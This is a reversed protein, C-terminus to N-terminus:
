SRCAGDVVDAREGRGNVEFTNGSPDKFWAMMVPGAKHIDGDRTTGPLDDYHQFTTVGNTKLEEVTNEVDSVTWAATTAKNTGANESEYVILSSAGSRYQVPWRVGDGAYDQEAAAHLSWSPDYLHPRALACLDARGALVISNVDDGDATHLELRGRVAPGGLTVSVPTWVGVKYKGNFGVVVKELTIDAALTPSILLVLALLAAASVRRTLSPRGTSASGRKRTPNTHCYNTM